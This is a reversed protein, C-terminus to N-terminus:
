RDRIYLSRGAVARGFPGCGGPWNLVVGPWVLLMKALALARPRKEIGQSEQLQECPKLGQARPLQFLVQFFSM